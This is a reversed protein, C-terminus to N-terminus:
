DVLPLCSQHRFHLVISYQGTRPSAVCGAALAAAEVPSGHMAKFLQFENDSVLDATINASKSTSDVIVRAIDTSPFSVFFVNTEGERGVPFAAEINLRHAFSILSMNVLSHSTAISVADPSPYPRYAHSDDFM